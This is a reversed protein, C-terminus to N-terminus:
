FRRFFNKFLVTTPEDAFIIQPNSLLECAFLLRRAEGGSIGKKIGRSGIRAHRCSHLGL